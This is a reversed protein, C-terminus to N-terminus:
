AWIESRIDRQVGVKRLNFGVFLPDIESAEIQKERLLAGEKKFARANKIDPDRADIEVTRRRRCDCPPTQNKRDAM